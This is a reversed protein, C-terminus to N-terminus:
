AKGPRFAIPPKPPPLVIKRSSEKEQEQFDRTIRKVDYDFSAAHAERIKRIEEIIPDTSNTM